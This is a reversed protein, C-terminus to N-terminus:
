EELTVDLPPGPGDEEGEIVRGIDGANRSRNGEVWCGVRTDRLFELVAETAKEGWLKRVEPARPHRWGCEKGVRKWLRQIQPAWARCEVFLHRRSQKKGSSCWGCVSSARRLPGTMREHLFTGIAAHGSLLQYYRGAVSKRTKRLLKRPLGPGSPPRYRREPRVRDRIWDRKAKSRSETIVRTLHSLSAEWRIEDPLSQSQGQAAEKAFEDAKENGEVKQHSPVWRINITNGRATIRSGVEIGARAWQQGPGLSDSRMRRIAATSDSFITFEHGSESREEFVRLAQYIAFTEADFVEKNTGLFFRRGRWGGPGPTQWVCAAGVRGNDFRSGDTWITDSARWLRATELAPGAEDITIVGPFTRGQGWVQPETSEGPKIGTATRLRQSLEAGERTLIEEPGGGDKPRAILRHSFMAQRHNLLARAPTLGSEAALIGQPTSRFSGLTSRAMRNIARQYEGEVGKQGKWTLESAYLMTGQVLSMLLNRASAPPVGYQSVIRRIKAEAQRTKGMRIRRNEQLTLASDLWIGLWRTAEPKFHVVQQGVRVGRQSKRHKRARSFLIAETKSVEFRVANSQAWELSATACQELKCSVDEIDTGEVIWTIDDVFSIGRCDEVQSEVAQHIESIYLAFLVPSVPSGQPLGTTVERVEGDQGDVSMVVRRDQMFSDTWRVLCEDLKANRMKRLLCGRAVSPFAAAVDMLLAGAIVKRSWAEQVQAIAVGVADVASRKARCGYQGPHFGGVSECQESILSAVVKEVMKGLCNLLSICRYAKAAGYNDKGPKRIIVGKAVKWQAPHIGLRVHARIVAVVRRPDWDFLCRIALPSLSDPGPSKKSSTRQFATSVRAEDVEKYARGPPGEQGEGGEYPVPPPFSIETLMDVKDGHDAAVRSGHTITPIAIAGKPTIYRSIAWVDEGSAENLFREWCERRAKRITRKLEKQARTVAAQNRGGKRSWRLIKGLQRRKSRIDENWWRKSRACITVKRTHSNLLSIMTSQIFDIEGELDEESADDGLVPRDRTRLGWIVELRPEEAPWDEAREKELREKLAWGRVKWEPSVEPAPKTWKWEIVVHDSGTVQDERRLIRWDKCYPAAEPTALTLDIVSHCKSVPRTAQGDNKVHLEHADILEELFAADRRQECQPNWRRSHANFDGALITDVLLISDWDAREAPRDRSQRGTGQLYANLIRVERGPHGRRGLALVQLDGSTDKTWSDETSCTWDSDVRRATMVRGGKERLFEFAPHKSGEFKPPEQVLVLDAKREKATEMLAVLREADGGVNHQLIVAM